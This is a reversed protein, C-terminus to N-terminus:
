CQNLIRIKKSDKKSGAKSRAKASHQASPEPLTGAMNVAICIGANHPTHTYNLQQDRAWNVTGDAGDNIHLIVQHHLSSNKRISEVCLRVYALNNWTPIIISFM